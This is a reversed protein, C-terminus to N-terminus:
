QVVILFYGIALWIIHDTNTKLSSLLSFFFALAFAILLAATMYIVANGKGESTQIAM